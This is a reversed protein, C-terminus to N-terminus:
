SHPPLETYRKARRQAQSILSAWTQTGGRRRGHNYTLLCSKPVLTGAAHRRHKKRMFGPNTDSDGNEDRDAHMKGGRIAIKNVTSRRCRLYKAVAM